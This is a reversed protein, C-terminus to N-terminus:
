GSPRKAYMMHVGLGSFRSHHDVAVAFGKSQLLATLDEMLTQGGPINTHVEVSLQRIKPWDQEAIGALVEREANEADLKIFDVHDLKLEEIIQSLTKLQCDVKRPIYMWRLVKRIAWAKLRSPFIRAVGRETMALVYRVQQDFDFPTATSDAAVRPYFNFEAKKEKEALGINLLTVSSEPPQFDQLNVQLVEFIQPIPEVTILRIKPVQELIFLSWLGINGGIDIVVDEPHISLGERLYPEDEFIEKYVDFASLKGIIAIRRHNPLTMYKM